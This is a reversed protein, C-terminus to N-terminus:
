TGIRGLGGILGMLFASIFFLIILAPIAAVAWKVMFWVMSMFSMRLDVVVVPQAGAYGDMAARVSPSVSALRKRQEASSAERARAEACRPCPAKEQMERMTFEYSCFDCKM